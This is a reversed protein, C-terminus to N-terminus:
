GYPVVVPVTRKYTQLLFRWSTPLQPEAKCQPDDIKESDRIVFDGPSAYREFVSKLQVSDVRFGVYFDAGLFLKYGQSAPHPPFTFARTVSVSSNFLPHRVSTAHQVKVGPAVM